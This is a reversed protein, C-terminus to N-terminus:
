RIDVKTKSSGSSGVILTAVAPWMGSSNVTMDSSSSMTYEDSNRSRLNVWTILGRGFNSNRGHRILLHASNESSDVTNLSDFGCLFRWSANGCSGSTTNESGLTDADEETVLHASGADLPLVFCLPLTQMSSPSVTRKPDVILGVARFCSKYIDTPRTEILRQQGLSALM